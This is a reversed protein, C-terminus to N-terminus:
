PMLFQSLCILRHGDSFTLKFVMSRHLPTGEGHYATRAIDETRAPVTATQINVLVHQNHYAKPSYLAFSYLSRQEARGTAQHGQWRSLWQNRHCKRM